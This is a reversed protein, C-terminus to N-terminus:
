EPDIYRVLIEYKNRGESPRMWVLDTIKFGDLIYKKTLRTKPAVQATKTASQQQQQSKVVGFQFNM